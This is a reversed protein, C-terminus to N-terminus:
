DLTVVGTAAYLVRWKVGNFELLIFEGEADLVASALADAGHNGGVMNAHDLVVSDAPDGLTDLTILKRTGVTVGTGDGITVEEAGESGSTTIKAQYIGTDVETPTADNSELDENGTILTDAAAEIEAQAAEAAEKATVAEDRAAEAATQATEADDASSEALHADLYDYLAKLSRKFATRPVEFTM